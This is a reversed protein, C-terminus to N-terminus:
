KAFHDWGSLGVSRSIGSPSMLEIRGKDGTISGIEAVPIDDEKAIADRIRAVHEPACTIILEYDDSDKLVYDMPNGGSKEAFQRLAKSVPLREEHLVAGVGSEFCIHGLDGLLGDSTDIM